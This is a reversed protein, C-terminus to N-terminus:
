KRILKHFMSKRHSGFVPYRFQSFMWFNSMKNNIKIILLSNIDGTEGAESFFVTLIPRLFLSLTPVDMGYKMTWNM